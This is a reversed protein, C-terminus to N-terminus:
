EFKYSTIGIYKVDANSNQIVLAEATGTLSSIDMDEMGLNYQVVLADGWDDSANALLLYQGLGWDVEIEQLNEDYFLANVKLKTKDSLDVPADFPIYIGGDWASAFPTENIWKIDSSFGSEKPDSGGSCGVFVMTLLLAIAGIHLRFKKM